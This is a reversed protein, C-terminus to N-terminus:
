LLTVFASASGSGTSIDVLITTSSIAFNITPGASNTIKIVSAGTVGTTWEFFALASVNGPLSVITIFGRQGSTITYVGTPTTSITFTGSASQFGRSKVTGSLYLNSTSISGNNDLTLRTPTSSFNAGGPIGGKIKFLTDSDIGWSWGANFSNDVGMFCNYAQGGSYIIINAGTQNFASIGGNIMTNGLTAYGNIFTNGLSATTSQLNGINANSSSINTLVSNASSLRTTIITPCTLNTLLLNISNIRGTILSVCSMTSVSIYPSTIENNVYLGNGITQSDIIFVSQSSMNTASLNASSINTLTANTSNVNTSSINTFRTNTSSIQGNILLDNVVTLSGSVLSHSGVTLGETITVNDYLKVNLSGPGYLGGGVIDLTNDSFLSYGIRGSNILTDYGQIGSCFDIGSTELYSEIKYFLSSDRIFLTKGNKSGSGYTVQSAQSNSSQTWTVGYDSSYYFKNFFKSFSAMYQGTASVIINNLNDGGIPLSFEWSAGYDQSVWVGAFGSFVSVAQYQGTYSMDCGAWTFNVDGVNTNKVWTTGFDSSNYLRDLLLLQYQGTYNSCAFQSLTFNDTTVQSGQTVYLTNFTEGFDSSQMVGMTSYFYEGDEIISYVGTQYKGNGSMNLGSWSAGSLPVQNKQTYISGFSSGSVIYGDSFDNAMLSYYGNYNTAILSVTSGNATTYDFTKGYDKSVGVSETESAHYIHKGLYDVALSGGSVIANLSRSNLNYLGTRQTFTDLLGCLTTDGDNQFTGINHFNGFPTTTNIGVNGGSTFISGITNVTSQLNRVTANVASINTIFANGISASASSISTTQISGISISSGLALNAVSLNAVQLNGVSANTAGINGTSIGVHANLIGSTDVRLSEAWQQPGTRRGVVFNAPGGDSFGSVGGFYINNSGYATNYCNVDILNATVVQNGSSVGLPAVPNAYIAMTTGSPTYINRVSYQNVNYYENSSALSLMLQSSTTNVLLTGTSINGHVSNGTSIKSVLLMQDYRLTMLSDVGSSGFKLSNSTSNAGSYYFRIESDNLSTTLSKGFIINNSDGSVMDPCLQILGSGYASSPVSVNLGATSISTSLINEASISSSSLVGGVFLTDVNGGSPHNLYLDGSLASNM